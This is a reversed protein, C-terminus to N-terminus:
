YDGRWKMLFCLEGGCDTAGLIKHPVRGRDFGMTELVEANGDREAKAKQALSIPTPKDVEAAKDPEARAM